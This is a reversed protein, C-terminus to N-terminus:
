KTRSKVPATQKRGGPVYGSVGSPVSQIAGGSRLFAATQSAISRHDEEAKPPKAKYKVTKVIEM